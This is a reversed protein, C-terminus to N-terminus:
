EKHIRLNFITLVEVNADIQTKASFQAFDLLFQKGFVSGM